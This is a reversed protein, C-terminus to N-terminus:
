SKRFMSHLYSHMSQMFVRVSQLTGGFYWLLIEGVELKWEDFLTRPGKSPCTEELRFLPARLM